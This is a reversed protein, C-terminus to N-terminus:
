DNKTGPILDLVEKVSIIADDVEKSRGHELVQEAVSKMAKYSARMLQNAYIVVNFGASHLEEESAGNYSTPVCILPVDQFTKRFASAFCVVEAASKSRSHIMIGDAGAEVYKKARHLADDIGKELILSEIRAIVMFSPSVTSNKTARIKEAFRTPDEQEQKTDNGFLSNQKLGCKDEVIIASIGSREITKINLVIHELKGGTDIDMIMPKTTVDFISNINELRKSLELAEIDPKGNLISDTLSSSWFGHFEVVENGRTRSAEEVIIASIPSHAECIRVLKGTEILRKLKPLRASPCNDRRLLDRESAIVDIDQTYPVEVLKGGYEGLKEICRKRIAAMKGTAWDDGHVMVDPRLEDITQTYDWEDQKVVKKVYKLSLLIEKRMEYNMLPLPKNGAIADDSLLGVTVEGYKNAERLINIIGPHIIAATMGVYVKDM